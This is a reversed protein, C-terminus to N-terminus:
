KIVTKGPEYKLEVRDGTSKDSFRVDTAQGSNTGDSKVQDSWGDATDVTNLVTTGANVCVTGALQPTGDAAYAYPVAITDTNSPCVFGETASASVSPIVVAGLAGAVVLSGLSLKLSKKVSFEQL